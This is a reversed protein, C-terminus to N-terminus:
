SIPCISLCNGRCNKQIGSIMSIAFLSSIPAWLLWLVTVPGPGHKPITNSILLFRSDHSVLDALLAPGGDSSGDDVMICLWDQYTQRKLADVFPAVFRSANRYPTVISVQPKM